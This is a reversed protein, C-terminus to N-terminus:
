TEQKNVQKNTQKIINKCKQIQLTQNTNALLLIKITKKM